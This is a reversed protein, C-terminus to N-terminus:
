YLINIVLGKIEEIESLLNMKNKQLEMFNDTIFKLKEDIIRIVKLDLKRGRLVTVKFVNRSAAQLFKKVADRYKMLNSITADDRLQEGTENISGLLKEIDKTTQSTITDQLTAQFVSKEQELSNNENSRIHKRKRNEFIRNAKKNEAPNVYFM